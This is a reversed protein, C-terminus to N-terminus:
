HYITSFVAASNVCHGHALVVSRSSLPHRSQDSVFTRRCAGAARNTKIRFREIVTLNSIRESWRSEKMIWRFAVHRCIFGVDATALLPRHTLCLLLRRSFFEAVKKRIKKYIKVASCADRDLWSFTTETQRDTRGDTLPTIQSLVFSVQASMRIGYSLGNMGTKHCSTHKTPAVGGVQFKPDLQSPSFVGINELPAEATVCLLFTWNVNIPLGSRAKWHVSSTCRINGM